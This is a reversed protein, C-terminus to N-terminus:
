AKNTVVDSQITTTAKVHSPSTSLTLPEQSPAKRIINNNNNNDVPSLHDKFVTELKHGDSNHLHSVVTARKALHRSLFAMPARFPLIKPGAIVKPSSRWSNIKINAKTSRVGRGGDRSHSGDGFFRFRSGTLFVKPGYTSRTYKAWQKNQVKPLTSLSIKSIMNKALTHINRKYGESARVNRDNYNNRWQFPRRQARLQPVTGKRALAAIHKKVMVLPTHGEDDDADAESMLLENNDWLDEQERQEEEFKSPDYSQEAEREQQEAIDEARKYLRQLQGLQPDPRFRISGLRMRQFGGDRAITGIHRKNYPFTPNRPSTTLTGPNKYGMGDPGKMYHIRQAAYDGQRALSSLQRKHIATKMTDQDDNVDETDSNEAWARFHDDMLPERDFGGGNIVDDDNDVVDNIDNQYIDDNRILDEPDDIASMSYHDLLQPIEKVTSADDTTQEDEQFSNLVPLLNPDTLSWQQDIFANDAM